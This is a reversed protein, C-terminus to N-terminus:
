TSLESGCCLIKAIMIQNSDNVRAVQAMTLPVRGAYRKSARPSIQLEMLVILRELQNSLM